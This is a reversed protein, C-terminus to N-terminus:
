CVTEQDNEEMNTAAKHESLPYSVGNVFDLILSTVTSVFIGWNGLFAGNAANLIGDYTKSLLFGLFANNEIEVKRNLASDNADTQQRIFYSKFVALSWISTVITIVLAPALTLLCYAIEVIPQYQLQSTSNEAPIQCFTDCFAPIMQVFGDIMVILGWLVAVITSIIVCLISKTYNTRLRKRGKLILLQLVGQCTVIVMTYTTFLVRTFLIFDIDECLCYRIQLPTYIVQDLCFSLKDLCLTLLLSGYLVM